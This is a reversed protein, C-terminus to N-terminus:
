FMDIYLAYYVTFSDSYNIRTETESDACIPLLKAVNEIGIAWKHTV